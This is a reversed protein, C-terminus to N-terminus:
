GAPQDEVPQPAPEPQPEPAPAPAVLEALAADAAEVKAADADSDADLAAALNAAANADADALASELEAIRTDKAANSAVLVAWGDKVAAINANLAEYAADERAGMALVEKQLQDTKRIVTNVALRTAAADAQIDSLVDAIDLQEDDHRDCVLPRGCVGAWFDRWLGV